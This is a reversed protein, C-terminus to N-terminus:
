TERESKTDGPPGVLPSESPAPSPTAPITPPPQSPAPRRRAAAPPQAPAPASAPAEVLPPEAPGAAGAIGGPGMPVQSADRKRAEARARAASAPAPADRSAAIGPNEEVIREIRAQAKLKEVLRRQEEFMLWQEIRPRMSEKSQPAEERREEVKLLHWGESTQFPGAVQGVQTATAAERMTDPLNDPQRFGLDGGEAGSVRDISSDYAIEEFTSAGSDLRRKAAQAADKTAFLAHRLHVERGSRQLRAQERYLRDVAAEDLATNRLQDNLAGALILERARELRHRVDANRDLARTEAEMAFLRTEILDELIQYFEDSTADFEEGERILGRVAAEAEVDSIYIPKGNVTAAVIPAAGPSAGKDADRRLVDGCATLGVAGVLLVVALAIALPRWSRTIPGM